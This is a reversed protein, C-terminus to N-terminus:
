YLTLKFGSESGQITFESGFVRGVLDELKNRAMPAEDPTVFTGSWHTASARSLWKVSYGALSDLHRTIISQAGSDFGSLILKFTNLRGRNNYNRIIYKAQVIAEQISQNLTDIMNGASKHRRHDIEVLGVFTGTRLDNIRVRVWHHETPDTLLRLSLVTDVRPNTQERIYQFLDRTRGCISVVGFDDLNTALRDTVRIGAKSLGAQLRLRASRHIETEGKIARHECDDALILHNVTIKNNPPDSGNPKCSPEEWDNKLLQRLLCNDYELIGQTITRSCSIRLRRARSEPMCNIQIFDRTRKYKRLLVNKCRIISKYKSKNNRKKCEKLLASEHQASIRSTESMRSTAFANNAGLILLVTLISNFLRMMLFKRVGSM